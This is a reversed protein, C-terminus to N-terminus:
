LFRARAAQKLALLRYRLHGRLPVRQGLGEEITYRCPGCGGCPQGGRPRHCFWTLELLDDFGHATARAQMQLKTLDLIPFRFSSFLSLGNNRTALEWYPDGDNEVRRISGKIFGHAKDDVHISLELGEIGSQQAYQALWVYQSGLHGQSRLRKYAATLASSPLLTGVDTISHPRVREAAGACRAKLAERIRKMTAIEAYTSKRKSRLLYHPQVTKRKSLVLDLLRYTSDWGGTWLLHTVSMAMLKFPVGPPSPSSTVDSARATTM